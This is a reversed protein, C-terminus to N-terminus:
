SPDPGPKRYTMWGFVESVALRFGPVVPGGDLVGDVGLAEVLRGARHVQVSRGDPDFFWALRCGHRLSHEIKEVRPGTSQGPSRIEVHLDPPILLEGGFGGRDHRPLKAAGLFAIDPIMSRGGFTFRLEILARGLRRLRAFRNLVAPLETQIISHEIQPSMKVEIRGDLFELYPREDIRPWRLFQDLTMTAGPDIETAM